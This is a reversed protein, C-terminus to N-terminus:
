IWHHNVKQRNILMQHHHYWSMGRGNKWSVSAYYKCVEQESTILVEANCWSEPTASGICHGGRLLSRPTDNPTTSRQYKMTSLCLYLSLLSKLTEQMSTKRPHSDSTYLLFNMIICNWFSYEIRYLICAYILKCESPSELKWGDSINSLTNAASM